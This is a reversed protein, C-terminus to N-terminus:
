LSEARGTVGKALKGGEEYFRSAGPLLYCGNSERISRKKIWKVLSEYWSVFRKSKEVIQPPNNCTWYQMEAWIRGPVLNESDRTSRTFEIIESKEKDPIYYGQKEIYKLLPYNLERHWINVTFWGPEDPTPLHSIDEIANEYLRWLFIVSNPDSRLFQLFENEDQASMYFNVQKGM